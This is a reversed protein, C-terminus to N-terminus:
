LFGVRRQWVYKPDEPRAGQGPVVWFIGVMGILFFMALALVSGLTSNM